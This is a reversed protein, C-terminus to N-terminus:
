MSAFSPVVTNKGCPLTTIVAFFWGACAVPQLNERPLVDTEKTAVKLDSIQLRCIALIREFAIDCRISHDVSLCILDFLCSVM